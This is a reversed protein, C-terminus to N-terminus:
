NIKPCRESINSKIIGGGTFTTLEKERKERIKHLHVFLLIFKTYKQQKKFKNKEFRGSWDRSIEAKEVAASTM